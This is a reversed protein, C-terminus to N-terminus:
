PSLIQGVVFDKDLCSLKEGRGDSNMWTCAASGIRQVVRLLGTLPDPGSGSGVRNLPYPFPQEPDM